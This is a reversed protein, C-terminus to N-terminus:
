YWGLEKRRKQEAEDWKKLASELAFRPGMTCSARFTEGSATRIVAHSENGGTVRAVAGHEPINHLKRFREIKSGDM